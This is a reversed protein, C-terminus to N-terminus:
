EKVQHFSNQKRDMAKLKELYVLIVENMRKGHEINLAWYEIRCNPM